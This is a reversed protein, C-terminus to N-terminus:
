RLWFLQDIKMDITGVLQDVAIELDGKEGELARRRLGAKKEMRSLM